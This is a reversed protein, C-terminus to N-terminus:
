ILKLGFMSPLNYLTFDEHFEKEFRNAYVNYQTVFNQQIKFLYKWIVRHLLLMDAQPPHGSIADAQCTPRCGRHRKAEREDEQGHAAVGDGFQAFGEEIEVDRKVHVHREM